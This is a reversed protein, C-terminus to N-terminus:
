KKADRKFNMMLSLAEEVNYLKSSNLKEIVSKSFKTLKM